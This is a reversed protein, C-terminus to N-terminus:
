RASPGAAWLTASRTTGCTRGGRGFPLQYVSSFTFRHRIDNESPGWDAKRNYYNSYAAGEDGLTAGGGSSNDLFKSWTYTTILNFGHSFRKQLKALGAHYSSVGFSPALITM